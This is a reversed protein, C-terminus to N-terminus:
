ISIDMYACLLDFSRRQLGALPRMKSGYNLGAEHFAIDVAYLFQSDGEFNVGLVDIEAQQLLQSLSTTGKYIKYDYKNFFFESSDIMLKQNVEENKLEWSSSSPKWNMQVLQCGKAHRLWSYLLSEGIEVKM